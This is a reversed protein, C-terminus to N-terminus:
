ETIENKKNYNLEPLEEQSTGMYKNLINTFYNMPKKINNYLQFSFDVHYDMKNTREDIIKNHIEMYDLRNEISDMKIILKDLKTNIDDLLQKNKEM